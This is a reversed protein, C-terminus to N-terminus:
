IITKGDKKVIKIINDIHVLLEVNSSDDILYSFCRYGLYQAYEDKIDVM